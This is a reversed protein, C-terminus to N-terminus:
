KKERGYWQYYNLIRRYLGDGGFAPGSFMMAFDVEQRGVYYANMISRLRDFEGEPHPRYLDNLNFTSHGFEHAAMKKFDEKKNRNIGM